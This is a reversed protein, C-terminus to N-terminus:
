VDGAHIDHDLAHYVEGIDDAIQALKTRMWDELNHGDPIMKYLKEAYKSVKYMQSKAMYAGKYHKHNDMESNNDDYGTQVVAYMQEDCGACTGCGCDGENLSGYEKKTDEEYMTNGCQECVADGEYMTMKSGCESCSTDKGEKMASTGCQECVTDGEYMKSGCESCAQYMAQRGPDDHKNLVGYGSYKNKSFLAEEDISKNIESIILKRLLKRNLKM